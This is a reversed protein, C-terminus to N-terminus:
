VSKLYTTETHLNTVTVTIEQKFIQSCGSLVHHIIIYLTHLGSVNNNFYLPSVYQEEADTDICNTLQKEIKLADKFNPIGSCKVVCNYKAWGEDPTSEMNSRLVERKSHSIHDPWFLIGNAEWKYPVVTFYIGRKERTSVIKFCDM